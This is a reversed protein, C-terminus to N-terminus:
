APQPLEFQGEIIRRQDGGEPTQQAPRHRLPNAQDGGAAIKNEMSSPVSLAYLPRDIEAASVTHRDRAGRDLPLFLPAQLRLGSQVGM